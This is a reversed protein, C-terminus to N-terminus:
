CNSRGHNQRVWSYLLYESLIAGAFSRTINYISEFKLFCGPIEATDPYTLALRINQICSEATHGSLM